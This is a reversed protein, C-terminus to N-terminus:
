QSVVTNRDAIWFRQLMHWQTPNDAISKEFVLACGAVMKAIRDGRPGVGEDAVPPFFEVEINFGNPDRPEVYKVFAPILAAGTQVALAAPGAPMSAPEGFFDVVVGNSSLDRDAVLAVLRGARLRSALVGVIHDGDTALVEMGLRQRYRLFAQFLSEPKLREAVTTLPKGTVCAWAGAHDWNGVHPLAVICGKGGSLANELYEGNIIKITKIIRDASWDPIRFSDCWYRFYLRMAKKSLARLEEDNADPKVRLLNGELQLVGKGKQRWARDAMAQFLRYALPEPM